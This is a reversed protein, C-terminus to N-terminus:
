LENPIYEITKMVYQSEDFAYTIVIEGAFVTISIQAPVIAKLVSGDVEYTVISGFWAKEEGWGQAYDEPLTIVSDQGNVRVTVTVSGNEHVISTDAYKEIIDLPDTVNTEVFDQPNIVHVTEQNVGTGEGTTLIVALEKRGDGNIDKLILEPLFADKGISEWEYYRSVGNISLYLGDYEGTTDFDNKDGYIYIQDDPLSALLVNTEPLSVNGKEEGWFFQNSYEKSFITWDFVYHSDNPDSIAGGSGSSIRLIYNNMDYSYYTHGETEDREISECPGYIQEIQDEADGAKLGEATEIVPTKVSISSLVWEERGAKVSTKAFWLSYNENFLEDTYDGKLNINAAELKKTAEDVSMGLKLPCKEGNPGLLVIDDQAQDSSEGSADGIRQHSVIWFGDGQMKLTLAATECFLRVIDGQREGSTYTFYSFGADSTFNYYADYDKLFILEDMGVGSLENLTIGMYEKLAENVTSASFKHIPVPMGDLAMDVGFPWNESDKLAEFETKDTVDGDSPFYRLLEALNIDEPRGYYSSLFQSIPNVSISNGQEDYLLPEFTKNYQEVEAATLPVIEVNYVTKAGTFTCCAAAFAVLVVAVVASTLLKPKKAILTIREKISRKSGTMTTATLLLAARKQCTMCILTRGYEAREDEGIRRITAEDCALEADDRSLFAAWWVLPNYWHLALCVIRLVSWFNDGHRFHTTEHEVTHRLITANEAAGSTVYIAPRFLGFLCPTDTENSIYVPLASGKVELPKRTRRLLSSFRGNSVAFAIFLIAAGCLWIRIFAERFALAKEMRTFEAETKNDAVTVPTEPMLEYSPYGEVSGSETHWINEVDRVSEFDQVVPVKQVSNMVSFGSSGISCPILLRLLVLGWLAYQLQLSIKGKLIHRLAIIVAILISSSVIWKIV